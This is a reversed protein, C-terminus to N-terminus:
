AAAAFLGAGAKKFRAERGKTKIERCMASYLTADPTKGGPSTWLGQEAMMGVLEKASKPNSCRALVKAAADLASVRKEKAPNAKSKNSQGHKKAAAIEVKPDVDICTVQEATPDIAPSTVAGSEAQEIKELNAATVALAERRAKETAKSAAKSNAGAVIKALKSKTSM